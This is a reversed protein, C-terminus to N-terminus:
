ESPFHEDYDTIFLRLLEGRSLNSDRHGLDKRIARLLIEWAMVAGVDNGQEHLEATTQQWSNFAVVMESSAGLMLQRAKLDKFFAETEPDSADAKESAGIKQFITGLLEYYIPTMRDRNADRLRAQESRGQQWVVGLAGIVAVGISGAVAPEAQVAKIFAWAVLASVAVFVLLGVLTQLRSRM